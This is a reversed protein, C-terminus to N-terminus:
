GPQESKRDWRILRRIRGLHLEFQQQRSNRTLKEVVVYVEPSDSRMGNILRLLFPPEIGNLRKQWYPSMARYEVRKRKAVIERFFERKINMTVTQVHKEERM